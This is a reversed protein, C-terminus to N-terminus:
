HTYGLSELKKRDEDSLAAADEAAKWEKDAYATLRPLVHRLRYPQEEALDALEAPDRAINYLETKGSKVEFITKWDGRRVAVVLPKGTLSPGFIHWFKRRAGHFTEM